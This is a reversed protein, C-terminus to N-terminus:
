FNQYTESLFQAYSDVLETILLFTQATKQDTSLSSITNETFLKLKFKALNFLFVESFTELRMNKVYENLKEISFCTKQFGTFMELEQEGKKAQKLKQQEQIILLGKKSQKIPKCIANNSSSTIIKHHLHKCADLSTSYRELFRYYKQNQTLTGPSTRSYLNIDIEWTHSSLFHIANLNNAKQSKNDYSSSEGKLLRNMNSCTIRYTKLQQTKDSDELDSDVKDIVAKNTNSNVNPHSFAPHLLFASISSHNIKISTMISVQILKSMDFIFKYQSDEIRYIECDTTILLSIQEDLIFKRLHNNEHWDDFIVYNLNAAELMCKLEPKLVDDETTCNSHISFFASSVRDFGAQKLASLFKKLQQVFPQSLQVNKDKKTKSKKIIYQVLTDGDILLTGLGAFRDGIDIFTLYRTIYWRKLDKNKDEM